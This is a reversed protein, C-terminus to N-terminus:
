HVAPSPANAPRNTATPQVINPGSSQAQRSVPLAVEFSGTFPLITPNDIRVLAPGTAFWRTRAIADRIACEAREIAHESLGGRRSIVAWTSPELQTLKVRRSCPTPAQAISSIGDLRVGVQWLGPARHQQLLPREAALQQASRNDGGIYKELRLLATGRALGMDGKVSTQALCGRQVRRIEVPGLSAIITDRAEPKWSFVHWDLPLMRRCHRLLAAKLTQGIRRIPVPADEEAGAAADGIAVAPTRGGLLQSTVVRKGTATAGSRRGM